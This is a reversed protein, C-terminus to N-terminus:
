SLILFCKCIPGGNATQPKRFSIMLRPLLTKGFKSKIFFARVIPRWFPGEFMKPFIVLELVMLM